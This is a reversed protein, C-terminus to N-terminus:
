GGCGSGSPLTTTRDAQELRMDSCSFVSMTAPFFLFDYPHDVTVAVSDGRSFNAGDGNNDLWTVTIENPDSLIGGSRGITRNQVKTETCSGDGCNVSGFRSGERVANSVSVYHYMLMGLDVLLLFFLIFVPLILVFELAAQGEQRHFLQHRRHPQGAPKDAKHKAGNMM